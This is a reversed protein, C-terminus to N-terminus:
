KLERDLCEVMAMAVAAVQILEQRIRIKQQNWSKPDKSKPNSEAYLGGRRFHFENIEKAAEGFEEALISLWVIQLHNQVGWKGDQRNREDRIDAYIGELIQNSVERV